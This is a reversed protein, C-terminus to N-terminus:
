FFGGMGGMGPIGGMVSENAEDIQKLADNLAAVLSDEIMEVDEPGELAEPDITIKKVEHAGTIQVEVMGGGAKGTFVTQQIQNQKELMEKQMKKLRMMMQQNM